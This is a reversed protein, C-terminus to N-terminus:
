LGDKEEVVFEKFKKLFAKRLQSQVKAPSTNDMFVAFAEGLRVKDLKSGIAEREEPTLETLAILYIVQEINM